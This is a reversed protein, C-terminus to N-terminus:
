LHITKWIKISLILCFMRRFINKSSYNNYDNSRYKINDDHSYGRFIIDNPSKNFDWNRYRLSKYQPFEQHTTEIGLSFKNRSICDKERTTNLFFIENNKNKNAGNSKRGLSHSYSYKSDM